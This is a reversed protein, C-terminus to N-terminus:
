KKLILQNKYRADIVWSSEIKKPAKEIKKNIYQILKNISSILTSNFLTQHWAKITIYPYLKNKLIILTKNEWFCEYNEIIEAPLNKAFKFIENEEKFNSDKNKTEVLFCNEYTVPKYQETPILEGDVTIVNQNNIIIIPKKAEISIIPQKLRNYFIKIRNIIQYKEKLCSIIKKASFIKNQTCESIAKKIPTELDSSIRYDYTIFFNSLNPKNFSYFLIFVLFIPILLYIFKIKM